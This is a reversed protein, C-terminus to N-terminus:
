TIAENKKYNCVCVYILKLTVVNDFTASYDYATINPYNIKTVNTLNSLKMNTDCKGHTYYLQIIYIYKKTTIIISPAIVFVCNMIMSLLGLIEIFPFLDHSFKNHFPFRKM